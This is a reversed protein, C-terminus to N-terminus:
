QRPAASPQTTEPSRDGRPAQPPAAQERPAAPQPEARQPESKRGRDPRGGGVAGGGQGPAAGPQVGEEGPSGAARAAGQGQTKERGPGSPAQREVREAKVGAKAGGSSQQRVITPRQQQVYTDQSRYTYRENHIIVQQTPAPYRDRPYDRQYLPLPAP